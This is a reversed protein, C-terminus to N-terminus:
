LEQRILMPMHGLHKKAAGCALSYETWVCAWKGKRNITKCRNITAIWEGERGEGQEEGQLGTGAPPSAEVVKVMEGLFARSGTRDSVTVKSDSWSSPIM